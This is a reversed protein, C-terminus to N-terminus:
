SYASGALIKQSAAISLSNRPHCLFAVPSCEDTGPHLPRCVVIFVSKLTHKAPIAQDIVQSVEGLERVQKARHVTLAVQQIVGLAGMEERRNAVSDSDEIEDLLNGGNRRCIRCVKSVVIGYYCTEYEVM